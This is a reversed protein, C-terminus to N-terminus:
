PGPPVQGPDCDITGGYTLQDATQGRENSGPCRENNGVDLGPLASLDDQNLLTGLSINPIGNPSLTFLNAAPVIRAVGGNADYVGSHGFDDFWGSVGEVTVYPRLFALQPLADDLAAAAAPLAGPRSEGNRDVPGSAIEGVPGLLRTLETLDNNGGPKSVIGDLDNVAPIADRAFGRLNRTFPKLEKVVPKSATILPDVDDLAARLNFTTTNFQRMFDPLQGVASALRRNQSGIAGLTKQGGDVLEDIEKSHEALASTLSAGDVILSELAPQDSNLEGFVRRSTSLFPNFYYFGQNAQAGVGDYSRAFGKIVGQLGKVTPEDLTDFLQDLDVESVTNEQGIAGGSDIEEGTKDAPPLALDVYRNAVGSLSQSRVTATTGDRLPTYADEDINLEVLAQGDDGLKIEGVKGVPVGAVTVNNGNVLQSANQFQATVKYSEGGGLLLLLVVFLAGILALIAAIRGVPSSGSL